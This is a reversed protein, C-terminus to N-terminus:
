KSRKLTRHAIVVLLAMLILVGKNDARLWLGLAWIASGADHWSDWLAQALRQWLERAQQALDLL